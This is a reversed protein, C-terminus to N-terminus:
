KKSDSTKSSDKSTPRHGSPSRATSESKSGKRNDSEHENSKAM